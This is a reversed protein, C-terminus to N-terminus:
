KMEMLDVPYIHEKLMQSAAYSSQEALLKHWERTDREVKAQMVVLGRLVFMVVPPLNTTDALASFLNPYTKASRSGDSFIVKIDSGTDIITYLIESGEAQFTVYHWYIITQDVEM